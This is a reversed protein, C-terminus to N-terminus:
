IDHIYMSEKISRAYVKIRASQHIRLTRPDALFEQCAPRM